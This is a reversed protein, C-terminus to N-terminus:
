KSKLKILFLTKSVLFDGGAFYRGHGYTRKITLFPTAAQLLIRPIYKVRAHGNM